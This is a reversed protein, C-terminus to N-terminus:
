SSRLWGRIDGVREDGQCALVMGVSPNAWCDEAGVGVKERVLHERGQGGIIESGLGFREDCLENVGSGFGLGFRISRGLDVQHNTEAGAGSM